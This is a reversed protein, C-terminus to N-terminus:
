SGARFITFDIKLQFRWEGNILRSYFMSQVLRNQTLANEERMMGIQRGAPGAQTGHSVLAEDKCNSSAVGNKRVKRM